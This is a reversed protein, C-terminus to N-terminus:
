PSFRNRDPSSKLPERSNWNESAPPEVLLKLTHLARGKMFIPDAVPAISKRMDDPLLVDRSVSLPTRELQGGAFASMGFDTIHTEVDNEAPPGEPDGQFMELQGRNSNASQTFRRIVGTKRDKYILIWSEGTFTNKTEKEASWGWSLRPKGVLSDCEDSATDISRIPRGDINAVLSLFNVVLNAEKAHAKRLKVRFQEQDLDFEADAPIEYQKSPDSKPVVFARYKRNERTAKWDDATIFLYSDEESIGDIRGTIEAAYDLSGNKPVVFVPPAAGDKNSTAPSPTATAPAASQQIETDSDATPPVSLRANLLAQNRRSASGGATSTDAQPIYARENDSM